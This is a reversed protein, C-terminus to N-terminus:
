WPNEGTFDEPYYLIPQLCARLMRQLTETITQAPTGGWDAVWDPEASGHGWPQDDSDFYVERVQVHDGERVLRHNWYGM